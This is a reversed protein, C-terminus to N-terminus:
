HLPSHQQSVVKQLVICQTRGQAACRSIEAIEAHSFQANSLIIASCTGKLLTNKIQELNVNVKSANVKLIRAPNIRGTNSLYDLSENEPNIMLIWKNDVHYNQCIDQYKESLDIANSIQVINCWQRMKGFMYPEKILPVRALSNNNLQLNLKNINIM